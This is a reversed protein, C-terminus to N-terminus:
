RGRASPRLTALILPSAFGKVCTGMMVLAPKCRNWSATPTEASHQAHPCASHDIRLVDLREACAHGAIFSSLLRAPASKGTSVSAHWCQPVSQGMAAGKQLTGPETEVASM